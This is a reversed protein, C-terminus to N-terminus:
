PCSALRAPRLRIGNGAVRQQGSIQAGSLYDGADRYGPGEHQWHAHLARPLVRRSRGSLRDEGSLHIFTRSLRLRQRAEKLPHHRHWDFLGTRVGLGCDLYSQGPAGLANALIEVTTAASEVLHHYFEHHFMEFLVLHLLVQQSIGRSFPRLLVCDLGIRRGEGSTTM